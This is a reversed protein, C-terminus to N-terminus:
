RCRNFNSSKKMTKSLTVNANSVPDKDGDLVYGYVPYLEQLGSQGQVFFSAVLLTLILTADVKRIM